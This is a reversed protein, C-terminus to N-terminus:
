QDSVPIVLLGPADGGSRAKRQRHAGDMQWAIVEGIVSCDRRHPLVLFPNRSFLFLAM